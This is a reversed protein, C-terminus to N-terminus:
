ALPMVCAFLVVNINTATPVYASLVFTFVCIISFSTLVLNLCTVIVCPLVLSSAQDRGNIRCVLLSCGGAASGFAFSRLSPLKYPSIVTWFSLACPPAARLLFGDRAALTEKRPSHLLWLRLATQLPHLKPPMQMQRLHQQKQTASIRM